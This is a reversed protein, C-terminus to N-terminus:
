DNLLLTPIFIHITLGTTAPSGFSFQGGISKIRNETSALGNGYVFNEPLGVGDDTYRIEVQKELQNFKVAVNQAASHKKMNVMLEQLIHKLEGKAKAPLQHWLEPTNGAISVATDDSGFSKLLGAIEEHFDLPATLVPEYSIDRSREYLKELEDLLQEKQIDKEHELKTMLSYLGNAVVDHIKQSTKFQQERILQQKRKRYWWFAIGVIVLAGMFTARQILLDLKKEANEKQLSLNETKNKESEYRVLAFQNKANNRSTQLSDNLVRYREFYAKMDVSSSLPILKQLAELEDDPSNLQRAIVLMKSAYLLASDPQSPLYYDSLRAYSTNLGWQDNEKERIQLAEKMERDAPYAANSLWRTYAQNTLIRAYEKQNRITDSLITHYIALAQDYKKLKQYAVAKGNLTIWRFPKDEILNLAKDYYTIAVEYNKMNLNANALQNFCSLLVHRDRETNEHLLKLAQLLTEQSGWNDGAYSQIIAMYTYAMAIQLSDTSTNASLNFYYFASDNGQNFLSEGKKYDEAIVIPDTKHIKGCSLM